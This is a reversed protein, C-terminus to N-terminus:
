SDSGLPEDLLDATKADSQLDILKLRMSEIRSIMSYTCGLSNMIKGALELNYVADDILDVAEQRTNM